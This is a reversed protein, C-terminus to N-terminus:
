NWGTDVKSVGDHKVTVNWGTDAAQAPTAVAGLLLATAAITGAAVKTVFRMKMM